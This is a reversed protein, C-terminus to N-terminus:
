DVLRDIRAKLTAFRRLYDQHDRRFAQLVRRDRETAGMLEVVQEIKQVLHDADRFPRETEEVRGERYLDLHGEPGPETYLLGFTDASASQVSKLVLSGRLDDLEDRCVVLDFRAQSTQDLAAGGNVVAGIEWDHGDGLRGQVQALFAHNGDVVLIRPTFQIGSGVSADAYVRRALALQVRFAEDLVGRVDEWLDDGSAGALGGGERARYRDCAVGVVRRLHPVQDPQKVVLDLAGLRMAEVAAEFSRRGALMVVATNPSRDRIFRALDLGAGLREVDLDVLAAPYFKQELRQRAESLDAVAACVYGDGEFLSRMGERHADTGDVILLEDGAAM